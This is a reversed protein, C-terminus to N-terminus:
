WVVEPAATAAGPTGWRRAFSRRVHRTAGGSLRKPTFRKAKAFFRALRRRLSAGLRPIAHCASDFPRTCKISETKGHALHQPVLGGSAPAQSLHSHMSAISIACRGNSHRLRKWRRERARCANKRKGQSYPKVCRSSLATRSFIIIFEFQRGKQQLGPYRRRNQPGKTARVGLCKTKGRQSALLPHKKEAFM